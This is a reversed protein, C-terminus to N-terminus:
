KASRRKRWLHKLPELFLSMGGSVEQTEGLVIKDGQKEFPCIFELAEGDASAAVLQLAQSYEPSEGSLPYLHDPEFQTERLLWIAIVKTAGIRQADWFIKRSLMYKEGQYEWLLTQPLVRRDPTYLFVIPYHHGDEVLINKASDFLYAAMEGLSLDRNLHPSSRPPVGYRAASEEFEHQSPTEMSSIVQPKIFEGTRLSVRITQQGVIGVMCPLRGGFRYDRSGSPGESNPLGIHHHADDVLISLTGFCHALVNLLEWDPLDAAIWRREVAMYGRDLMEDPIGQVKLQKAIQETPILPSVEYEKFTDSLYSFTLYVRILSHKKLDGQKVVKNRATVLWKLVPDSKMQDQWGSYWDDFQPIRAKNKQLVFTVNRLAQICANLNARFKAPVFYADEAQHWMIHADELRAHVDQIPCELCSHGQAYEGYECQSVDSSKM